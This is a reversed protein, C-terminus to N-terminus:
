GRTTRKINAKNRAASSAITPVMGNEDRAHAFVQMLECEFGCRMLHAANIFASHMILGAGSIRVAAAAGDAAVRTGGALVRAGGCAGRPTRNPLTPTRQQGPTAAVADGRFGM